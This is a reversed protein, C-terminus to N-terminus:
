RGRPRSRGPRRPVGHRIGPGIFIAARRQAGDDTGGEAYLGEACVMAGPWPTVSTFSIRDEKHAQQVGSTRLNDIILSAFDLTEGYEGKPEAVGEVFEDHEDVALVRHPSISEVTFPGAM